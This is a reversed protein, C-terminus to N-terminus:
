QEGIPITAPDIRRWQRGAFMFSDSSGLFPIKGIFANGTELANGDCTAALFAHEGRVSAEILEMVLADGDKKIKIKGTGGGAPSWQGVFEKCPGTAKPPMLADGPSQCGTLYGIVVLAFANRKM